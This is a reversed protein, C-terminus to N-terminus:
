HSFTLCLVPSALPGGLAWGNLCDATARHNM